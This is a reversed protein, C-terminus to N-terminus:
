KKDKPPFDTSPPSRVISETDEPTRPSKKHKLDGKFGLAGEVLVADISATTSLVVQEIQEREPLTQIYDRKAKLDEGVKVLIQENKRILEAAEEKSIGESLKLETKQHVDGIHIHINIPGINDAGKIQEAVQATIKPILKEIKDEWGM